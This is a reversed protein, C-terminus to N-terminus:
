DLLVRILYTGLGLVVGGASLAILIPPWFHRLLTGDPQPRVREHLGTLPAVWDGGDAAALLADLLTADIEVALRDEDTELETSIARLRSVDPRAGEVLRILEESAARRARDLPTGDPLRTALERAAPLNGVVLQCFVRLHRAADTDPQRALWAVAQAPTAPIRPEATLEASRRASGIAAWYMTELARTARRDRLYPAAFAPISVAVFSLGVLAAAPVSPPADPAFQGTLLSVMISAGAGLVIALRLRYRTERTIAESLAVPSRYGAV